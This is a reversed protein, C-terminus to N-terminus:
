ADKNARARQGRGHADFFLRNARAFARRCTASLKSREKWGQGIEEEVDEHM